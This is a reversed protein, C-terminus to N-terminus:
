SLSSRSSWARAHTTLALRCPRPRCCVERYMTLMHYFALGTMIYISVVHGWLRWSGEQVNAMSLGELTEQRNRGTANLPLVLVFNVATSILFLRLGMKLFRLLVATDVGAHDIVQEESPALADRVWGLFSRQPAAPAEPLRCQLADHACAPQRPLPPLRACGRVADAM